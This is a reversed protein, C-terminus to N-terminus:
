IRVKLRLHETDDAPYPHGWLLAYEAPEYQEFANLVARILKHLEVKDRFVPEETDPNVLGWDEASYLKLHILDSALRKMDLLVEEPEAWFIVRERASGDSLSSLAALLERPSDKITSIGFRFTKERVGFSLQAWGGTSLEFDFRM